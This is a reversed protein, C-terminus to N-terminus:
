GPGVIMRAPQRVERHRAVGGFVGGVGVVFVAVPDAAPVGHPVIVLEEGVAGEVVGVIGLPVTEGFGFDGGIVAGLVLPTVPVAQRRDDLLIIQAHDKVLDLVG